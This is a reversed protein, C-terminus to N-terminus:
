TPPETSPVPDPIMLEFQTNAKVEELTVGPHLSILNMRKDEKDFGLVALNTFVLDPGKGRLGARERADLGDIHGPATNHSVNEPFRRREHKMIVLIREAMSAIDNAGGGGSVRKSPAEWSPAVTLNLNGYVDVEIGTLFGTDVKGRHLTMGNVDLATTFITARYLARNDATGVFPHVPMAQAYGAEILISLNPAHTYKALTAAVMPIGTGALVREGDRLARASTVAMIEGRAFTHAKKGQKM